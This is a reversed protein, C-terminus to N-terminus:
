GHDNFFGAYLSKLYVRYIIYLLLDYITANHNSKRYLMVARRNRHTIYKKEKCTNNHRRRHRRFLVLHFKRIFHNKKEENVRKGNGTLKDTVNKTRYM